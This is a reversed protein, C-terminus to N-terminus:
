TKPVFYKESSSKITKNLCNYTLTRITAKKKTSILGAIETM